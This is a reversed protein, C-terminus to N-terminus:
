VMATGLAVALVVMVGVTSVGPVVTVTLPTVTALPAAEPAIARFTPALVMVVMTVASSPLVVM